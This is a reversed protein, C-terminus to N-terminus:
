KLGELPSGRLFKNNLEGTLASFKRDNMKTGEEVSAM